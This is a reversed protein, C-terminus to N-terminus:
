GRYVEVQLAQGQSEAYACVDDMLGAWTTLDNEDVLVGHSISFRWISAGQLTDVHDLLLDYAADWNEGFYDPFDFAVALNGLLTQKDLRGGKDLVIVGPDPQMDHIWVIAAPKDTATM